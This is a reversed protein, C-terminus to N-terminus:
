WRHPMGSTNSSHHWWVWTVEPVHRFVAGAKRMRMTFEYDEGRRQGDIQEGDDDFQAFGGCAQALETRVFTTVTTQCPDDDNWQEFAKAGLFQPGDFSRGDPFQICFRSWLYDAGHEVSAQRMTDLHNPLMEDDDDLFATWETTVAMLGAHRTRAAGQKETDPRAIVTVPENWNKQFRLAAYRVSELARDLMGSDIRPQITPIVVTVGPTYERGTLTM